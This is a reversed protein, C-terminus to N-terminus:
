RFSEGICWSWRKGDNVHVWGNAVRGTPLTYNDGNQTRGGAYTRGVVLSGLGTGSTYSPDSRMQRAKHATWRVGETDPWVIVNIGHNRTRLLAAKVVLAFPWNLYSASTGPDKVNVADNTSYYANGFISHNGLFANTRYATNATAHTDISITVAHGGVLLSKLDAASIGYRVVGTVGTVKKTAAVAEEYSLGRGTIGSAVRIHAHDTHIAAVTARDAGMACTTPVCDYASQSTLPGYQRQPPPQYTM